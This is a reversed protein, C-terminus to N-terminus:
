RTKEDLFASLYARYRNFNHSCAVDLKEVNEFIVLEKLILAM